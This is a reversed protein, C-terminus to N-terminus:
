LLLDKSCRPYLSLNDVYHADTDEEISNHITSHPFVELVRELSSLASLSTKWFTQGGIKVEYDVMVYGEPSPYFIALTNFIEDHIIIM